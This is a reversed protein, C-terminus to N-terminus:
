VCCVCCCCLCVVYNGDLNIGDGVDDDAVCVVVVDAVDPDDVGCNGGDVDMGCLLVDIVLCLMLLVVMYM